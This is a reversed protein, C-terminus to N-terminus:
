RKNEVLIMDVTYFSVVFGGSSMILVGWEAVYTVQVITFPTHVSTRPLLLDRLENGCVDRIRIAHICQRRGLYYNEKAVESRM